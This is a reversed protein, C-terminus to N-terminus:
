ESAKINAQQAIAKWKKMEAFVFDSWPGAGRPDPVMGRDIINKQMAPDALIKAVDVSIKQVVATPTNKPVVLGTWGAGEFGPYGSEAVTPLNPLQPVRELMAIGLAKLKGSQIHPLTAAMSDVLISIQGGLLDTVASASGKYNIGVMNIGATYKFFEGTLHQTNNVGGYGVNFKGPEKKAAAVLEQINNYPLTASVVIIMPAIALGGVYTFDKAADYALKDFVAPNVALVGSTGMIMTYGDPAATAGAVM